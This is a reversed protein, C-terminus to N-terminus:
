NKGRVEEIGRKLGSSSPQITIYNHNSDSTRSSTTTLSRIYDTIVFTCSSLTSSLSPDSKLTNIMFDYVEAVDMQVKPDIGLHTTLETTHTSTTTTDM